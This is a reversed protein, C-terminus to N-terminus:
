GNLWQVWHMLKYLDIYASKTSLMVEKSRTLPVV